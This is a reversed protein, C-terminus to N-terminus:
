TYILCIKPSSFFSLVQRGYSIKLFEVFKAFTLVGFILWFARIAFFACIFFVDFNGFYIFFCNFFLLKKTFHVFTEFHCYMFTSADLLRKHVLKQTSVVIELMKYAYYLASILFVMLMSLSVWFVSHKYLLTHSVKQKM